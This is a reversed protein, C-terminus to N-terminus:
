PDVFLAISASSTGETAVTVPRDPISVGDGADPLLAGAGLNANRDLIALGFYAGPHVQDFTLTAETAGVEVETRLYRAPTCDASAPNLGCESTTLVVWAYAGAEAPTTWTVDVSLQPMPPFPDDPTGPTPDVPFVEPQPRPEALQGAWHMHPMLLVDVTLDLTDEGVTFVADIYDCGAEGVACFRWTGAAEDHEILRTRTDRLIGLFFGGNRFVLEDVGDHTEVNFLFRLNNAADLDVRAFISRDDVPRMDMAMLPFDGVSTDSTVPAVWLGALAGMFQEVETGAPPEGTDGTSDDSGDTGSDDVATTAVPGGSGTSASGASTGGSGAATLEGDDGDGDDDAPCGLCLATGLLGGIVQSFRMM